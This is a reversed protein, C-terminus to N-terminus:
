RLANAPRPYVKFMTITIQKIQKFMNTLIIISAKFDSGWIAAFVPLGAPNSNRRIQYETQFDPSSPIVSYRWPRGRSLHKSNYAYVSAFKGLLEYDLSSLYVGVKIVIGVALTIHKEPRTLDGRSHCVDDNSVSVITMHSLKLM